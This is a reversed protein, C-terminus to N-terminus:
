WERPRRRKQRETRVATGSASRRRASASDANVCVERMLAAKFAELARRSRYNRGRIKIPPQWGLERLKLDRDWRWLGMLSTGCEKAVVPDPVLQDISEAASATTRPM